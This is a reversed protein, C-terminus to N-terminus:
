GAVRGEISARLEPGFGAGPERGAGFMCLKM